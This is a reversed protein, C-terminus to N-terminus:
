INLQHEVVRHQGAFNRLFILAEGSLIKRASHPRGRIDFRGFCPSLAPNRCSPFKMISIILLTTPITTNSAMANRSDTFLFTNTQACDSSRQYQLDCNAANHQIKRRPFPQHFLCRETDVLHHGITVRSACKDKAGSTPGFISTSNSPAPNIKAKRTSGAMM